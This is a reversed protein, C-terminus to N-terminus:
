SRRIPSMPWALARLAALLRRALKRSRHRSRRPARQAPRKQAEAGIDSVLAKKVHRAARTRNEPNQQCSACCGAWGSACAGSGQDAAAGTELDRARQRGGEMVPVTGTPYIGKAFLKQEAKRRDIISAPKSWAMMGAAAGSGDGANLKKVFSAKGIAGTNYHFSSSHM